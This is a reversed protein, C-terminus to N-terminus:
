YRDRRRSRERREAALMLAQPQHVPYPISNSTERAEMQGPANEEGAAIHQDLRMTEEDLYDHRPDAPHVLPPGLRRRLREPADEGEQVHRYIAALDERRRATLRGARPLATLPAASVVRSNWVCAVTLAPASLGTSWEGWWAPTAFRGFPVILWRGRGHPALVAVYVPGWVTGAPPLIVIDGPEIERVPRDYRLTGAPPKVAAQGQGAAPEDPSEERLRKELDWEALWAALRTRDSRRRPVITYSPTNM